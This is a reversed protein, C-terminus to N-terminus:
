VYYHEIFWSKDPIDMLEDNENVHVDLFEAIYERLKKTRGLAHLAPHSVKFSDMTKNYPLGSHMYIQKKAEKSMRSYRGEIFLKADPVFHYPLRFIFHLKGGVKVETVYNVNQKYALTLPRKKLRVYVKEGTKDIFSSDFCGYFFRKNIGLLPLM